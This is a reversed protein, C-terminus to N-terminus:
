NKENVGFSKKVDAFLSIVFLVLEKLKIRRIEEETMKPFVDFLLSNLKGRNSQVAKFIQMNDTFDKLDDFISLIDEVVGYMLDYTEVSYTKEIEKQNKYINLKLM